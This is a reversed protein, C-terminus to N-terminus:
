LMALQTSCQKSCIADVRWGLVFARAGGIGQVFFVRVFIVSRWCSM